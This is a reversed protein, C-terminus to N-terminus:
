SLAIPSRLCSAPSFRCPYRVMWGAKNAQMLTRAHVAVDTAEIAYVKSAGAKAAFLALIGSGTGVDLVVRGEFLHANKMVAEYYSGTRKRDELM